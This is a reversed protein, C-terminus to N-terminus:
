SPPSNGTPIGHSRTISVTPMALDLKTMTSRSFPPLAARMLCTASSPLCNARTMLSLLLKYIVHIEKKRTIFLLSSIQEPDISKGLDNKSWYIWEPNVMSPPKSM